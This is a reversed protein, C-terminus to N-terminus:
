TPSHPRFHPSTTCFSPTWGQEEALVLVGDVVLVPERERGAKALGERATHDDRPSDIGTEGHVRTLAPVIEHARLQGAEILEAALRALHPTIEERGTGLRLEVLLSAHGKRGTEQPLGAERAVDDDRADALEELDPVAGGPLGLQFIDFPPRLNNRFAKCGSLASWTGTRASSTRSSRATSDPSVTMSAVNPAPPWAASRQASRPPLPRNMAMSLSALTRGYKSRKWRRQPTCARKRRPSKATTSPCSASLPMSASAIRSSRPTELMCISRGSRPNEYAASAGSSMRISAEAGREARSM